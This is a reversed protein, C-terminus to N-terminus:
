FAVEKFEKLFGQRFVARIDNRQQEAKVARFSKPLNQSSYNYIIEYNNKIKAKM